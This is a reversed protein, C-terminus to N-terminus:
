RPAPEQVFRFVILMEITPAVGCALSAGTFVAIGILYLRRQGYLDGLRAGTILLMAYAISYGGVVLQLSTGSAHLNANIAPLGCQRRVPGVFGHIPGGALRHANGHTPCQRNIGGSHTPHDAVCVENPAEAKRITRRGIARPRATSVPRDDCNM